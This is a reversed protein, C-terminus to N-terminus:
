RQVSYGLRGAVGAVLPLVREVAERNEERWKDARPPTLATPATRSPLAAAAERAAGNFELGVAEHVRSLEGEPDAVLRDYTIEIWREPAMSSRAELVAENCVAWQRACIEELSADLLERWGPILAFSWREGDLPAIGRLPEPLRHTVFRPRARWGEMLSSINEAPDRHLFVFRADPFLADLYGIRLCNEPTKDLFRHGRTSARVALHVFRRERSSVDSAGLADSTAVRRRPPHFENWLIHGEAQVSRAEGGALLATRLATTGARPCGILLIPREPPRARVV